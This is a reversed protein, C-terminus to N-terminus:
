YGYWIILSRLNIRECLFRTRIRESALNFIPSAGHQHSMIMIANTMGRKDPADLDDAVAYVRSIWNIVPYTLWLAM